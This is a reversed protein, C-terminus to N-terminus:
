SREKLLSDFVFSLFDDVPQLDRDIQMRLTAGEWLMVLVHALRDADHSRAIEGAAQAERIVQALLATWQAYACKVAAHVPESLQSTELALKPILCQCAAGNAVCEARGLEFVARLRKLPSRQRDGVVPRLQEIYEASAREILAVGFDEKSAFYHYFSGKPVGARRLIETLGCSAFSKEAIAQHGAELIRDRTSVEKPPSPM